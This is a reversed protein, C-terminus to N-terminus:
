RTSCARRARARTSPGACWTRLRTSTAKNGSYPVRRKEVKLVTGLDAPGMCMLGMWTPVAVIDAQVRQRVLAFWELNAEVSQSLLVYDFKPDILDPEINTAGLFTAPRDALTVALVMFRELGTLPGLHLTHKVLAKGMTLMMNAM